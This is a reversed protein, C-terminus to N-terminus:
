RSVGWFKQFVNISLVLRSNASTALDALHGLFSNATLKASKASKASM